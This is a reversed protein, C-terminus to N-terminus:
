VPPRPVLARKHALGGSVGMPIGDARWCAGGSMLGTVPDILIGNMGGAITPMVVVDHGMERV